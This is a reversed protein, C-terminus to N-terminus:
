LFITLNNYWKNSPYANKSRFRSFTYFGILKDYKYKKILKYLKNIQSSLYYNVIEIIIKAIIVEKKEPM